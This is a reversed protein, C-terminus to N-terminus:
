YVGYAIYRRGNTFTSHSQSRAQLSTGSAIQCPRFKEDHPNIIENNAAVHAFNELGDILASGTGIDAANIGADQTNDNNGANALLVAKWPRNTTGLTTWSGDSTSGQVVNTGTSNATDAGVQDVGAGAWVNDGLNLLEIQLYCVDSAILARLSAGIRTGRPIFLPFHYRRPGATTNTASWGVALNPILTTEFSAGIKINALADTATATVFSGHATIVVMNSDYTTSAILETTSGEAHPTGSATITTGWTTTPRGSFNRQQPAATQPYPMLLGM